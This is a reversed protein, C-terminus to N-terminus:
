RLKILISKVTQHIQTFPFVYGDATPKFNSYVTTIEREEGGAKRMGTSKILYNTKTSIFYTTETGTKSVSKIKYAEEGDVTEKGLLELTTGNEKYNTFTGHLDLGSLSSKVQEDPWAEPETQGGFPMFAWGNTPTNIQYGTMGMVSIDVRQGVQHSRTITIGVDQGQASMNGEMIVTKIGNLKEKGGLAEIQKNIVEDLTQAKITQVSLLTAIAVISLKVQKM